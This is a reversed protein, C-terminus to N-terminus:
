CCSMYYYRISLSASGDRERERIVQYHPTIFVEYAGTEDGLSPPKLQLWESLCLRILGPSAITLDINPTPTLSGEM